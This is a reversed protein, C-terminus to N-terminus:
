GGIRLFPILDILWAGGDLMLGTVRSLIGTFSGTFVLVMLAVTIYREYRMLQYYRDLPLLATLLRSGDLPPVPLLNSVALSANLTAFVTFFLLVTDVVTPNVGTGYWLAGGEAVLAGCGLMILVAIRSLLLGFLMLILNSIPGALASLAMDRKPKKFNSVNVPVPTAWGFGFFLMCLTGLLNFHRAPNLTIRGQEAATPDGLRKAAWGHASEHVSIALLICPLRLLMLILQDRDFLNFVSLAALHTVPV